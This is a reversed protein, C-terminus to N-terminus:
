YPVDSTTEETVEAVHELLTSLMAAIVAKRTEPIEAAIMRCQMPWSDPPRWPFLEDAMGLLFAAQVDATARCFEIGVVAAEVAVSLERRILITSM